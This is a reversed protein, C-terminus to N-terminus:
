AKLSIFREKSAKESLIYTIKSDENLYKNFNFIFAKM